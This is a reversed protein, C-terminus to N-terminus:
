TNIINTQSAQSTLFVPVLSLIIKQGDEGSETPLTKEKSGLWSFLSSVKRDFNTTEWSKVISISAEVFLQPPSPVFCHVKAHKLRM